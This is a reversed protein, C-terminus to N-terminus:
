HLSKFDLSDIYPYAQKALDLTCFFGVTKYTEDYQTREYDYRDSSSSYADYSPQDNLFGETFVVVIPKTGCQEVAAQYQRKLDDKHASNNIATAIIGIIFIAVLITFSVAFIGIVGWHKKESAPEHNTTSTTKLTKYTFDPQKPQESQKLQVIQESKSPLKTTSQQVVSHDIFHTNKDVGAQANPAVIKKPQQEYFKKNYRKTLLSSAFGILIELGLTVVIPYWILYGIQGDSGGNSTNYQYAIIGSLIGIAPAVLAAVRIYWFSGVQPTHTIGSFGRRVLGIIFIALPILLLFGIIPAGIFIFGVWPAIMLLGVAIALVFFSTKFASIKAM